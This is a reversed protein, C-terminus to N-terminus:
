DFNNVINKILAIGSPNDTLKMTSIVVNKGARVLYGQLRANFSVKATDSREKIANPDQVIIEDDKVVPIKSLSEIINQAGGFEKNISEPRMIRAAQMVDYFHLDCYGDNPFDGLLKDNEVLTVLNGKDWGARFSTFFRGTDRDGLDPCIPPLLWNEPLRGSDLIIVKNGNKICEKIVSDYVDTIIPISKDRGATKALRPNKWSRCGIIISDVSSLREANPFIKKLARFLNIDETHLYLETYDVATDFAWFDWENRATKNESEFVATILLKKNGYKEPVSFNFTLATKTEGMEASTKKSKKAIVAGGCTLTVALTGSVDCDSFNSLSFDLSQRINCELARNQFGRNMLVAVDANIGNKFIDPDGNLNIGCDDSLGANCCSRRFFTWLAYGSVYPQRRAEELIIKSFSIASKRSNSILRQEIGELGNKKLWNHAQTGHDSKIGFPVTCDREEKVSPWVGFKGYEHILAPKGNTTEELAKWPIDTLGDYSLRFDESWLHPTELDSPIEPLEGQLGFCPIALQNKTNEKILKYGLKAKNREIVSEVMLQSGENGLCYIFVSPHRRTDLIFQKLMEFGKDEPTTKNFNSVLGFEVDLMIGMEDAISMEEDTPVYTHCRYFNFGHKKIASYRNTIIQRDTLPAIQPSYYESGTGAFFTPVGNVTIRNGKTKIERLGTKYEEVSSNGFKDTATVRIDVLEPSRYSWLPLGETSVPVCFEESEGNLTIETEASNGGIQVNLKVRSGKEGFLLGECCAAGGVYSIYSNEVRASSEVYVCAESYIGSWNMGCFRMGTVLSAYQETVAVTVRNLGSKVLETIDINISNLGYINKAAYSGNVWIHCSPAVGSFHLRIHENEGLRPLEFERELFYTGLYGNRMDNHPPFEDKLEDLQQICGPIKLEYEDKIPESAWNQALGNEESDTRLKWIGNLSIKEM